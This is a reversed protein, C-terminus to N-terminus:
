VSEQERRAKRYATIAPDHEICYPGSRGDYECLAECQSCKAVVVDRLVYCGVATPIM